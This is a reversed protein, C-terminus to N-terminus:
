VEGFKKEVDDGYFKGAQDIVRSYYELKIQQSGILREMQNVRNQLEILKLYDSETELVVKDSEPYVSFKKKWKYIATESVGYMRSLGSVSIKGMDLLRVKEIKFNESYVRRTKKMIVIQSFNEVSKNDVYKM